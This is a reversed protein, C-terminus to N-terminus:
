SDRDTIEKLTHYLYWFATEKQTKPAVKWFSQHCFAVKSRKSCSKSFSRAVKQSVAPLKKLFRSCSTSLGLIDSDSVLWYIIASQWKQLFPLPTPTLWNSFVNQADFVALFIRVLPIMFFSNLCTSKVIGTRTKINWFGQFDLGVRDFQWFIKYRIFSFDWFSQCNKIKSYLYSRWKTSPCTPTASDLTTM